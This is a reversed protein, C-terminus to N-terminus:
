FAGTIAHIGQVAGHKSTHGFEIAAAAGGPDVLNVFSDVTGHTVTIHTAGTRHHSALIAEARAAGEAAKAAVAGIVGPLHAVVSNCDSNIRVTAM